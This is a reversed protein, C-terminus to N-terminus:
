IPESDFAAEGLIRELSILSIQTAKPLMDTQVSRWFFHFVEM